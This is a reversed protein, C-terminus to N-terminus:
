KCISEALQHAAKAEVFHVIESNKGGRVIFGALGIFYGKTDKGLHFVLGGSMGDPNFRTKRTMKLRHVFRSNSQGAYTGTVNVLTGAIATGESCVNQLSYPFGYLMFFNETHNPWADDIVSKFFDHEFQEVDYKEVDYGLACIDTLDDLNGQEDDVFLYSSGTVLLKRDGAPSVVIQDPRYDFVQHKFLFVFNNRNIQIASGSGRLSYPFTKDENLCFIHLCHRALRKTLAKPPLWLDGVRVSNAFALDTIPRSIPRRLNTPVGIGASFTLASTIAEASKDILMRDTM